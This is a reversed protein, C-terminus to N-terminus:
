IDFQKIPKIAPEGDFLRIEGVAFFGREDYLRVRTGVEGSYRIKKLYIEVGSRALRAFFPPLTLRQWTPFLEETPLLCRARVEESMAQLDEVSYCRELPFGVAETRCLAAMVAGCGLAKGIDACLTRIYTGKSCHVDLAYDTDSLRQCGLSFVTIERAPRQLEIGRRALDMLKQGGIKIASYMPPTQQITGVFSEATRVVEAESPLAAGTPTLTGFADETDSTVGLRLVARYHKDQCILYESAKVARGILIPLVGTAMPDLTGTHGAASVGFLRKIENVARQSTIGERKHLLILGSKM